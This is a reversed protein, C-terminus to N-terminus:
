CSRLWRRGAAAARSCRPSPPVLVPFLIRVLAPGARPKRFPGTLEGDGGRKYGFLDQGAGFQHVFELGVWIACAAVSM